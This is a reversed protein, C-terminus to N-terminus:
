FVRYKSPASQNNVSEYEFSNGEKTTISASLDGPKDTYVVFSKQIIIKKNKIIDQADFYKRIILPSKSLVKKFAPHLLAEKSSIRENKDKLLMKKLLDLCEDSFDIGSDENFSFDIKCRKNNKIVEDYCDGSFPMKGFLVIYFVIGASFVDIKFDYKEEKLIEPAMYGPTGCRYFLSDIEELFSGLGLDCIIINKNKKNNIIINEPKIDRHIINNSHLYDLGELIQLIIHLSKLEPQNGKEIIHDYLNKGPCFNTLLYIHKKGEYISLLKIIHDEQIKRILKIENLIVKQEYDDNKKLVKSKKIVKVAYKIKSKIKEVLYVRGFNGTGLKSLIKYKRSFNLLICYKKLLNYWKKIIKKDKHFLIEYSGIKSFKLYYYVKNNIVKKSKKIFCNKIDLFAFEEKFNNKKFLLISDYMELFYKSFKNKQPDTLISFWNEIQKNELVPKKFKKLSKVYLDKEQGPFFINSKM